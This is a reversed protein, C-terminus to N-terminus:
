TGTHATGHDRTGGKPVDPESISYRVTRAQELRTGAPLRDWPLSRGVLDLVDRDLRVQTTDDPVDLVLVVRVGKRVRM